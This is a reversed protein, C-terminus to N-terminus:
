QRYELSLFYSYSEWPEHRQNRRLILLSTPRVDTRMEVGMSLVSSKTNETKESNSTESVSTTVHSSMELLGDFLRSPVTIRHDRMVSLIRRSHHQGMREMAVACMKVSRVIKSKSAASVPAEHSSKTMWAVDLSISEMTLVINSNVM